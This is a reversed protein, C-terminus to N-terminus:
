PGRGVGPASPGKVSALKRPRIFSPAELTKWELCFAHPGSYETDVVTISVGGIPPYVDRRRHHRGLLDFGVQKWRKGGVSRGSAGGIKPYRIYNGPIWTPEAPSAIRCRYGHNVGLLFWGLPFAGDTLDIRGLGAALNASAPYDPSPITVGAAPGPSELSGAACIHLLM